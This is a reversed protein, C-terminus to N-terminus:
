KMYELLENFIDDNHDHSYPYKHAITVLAEILYDNIILLGEKKKEYTMFKNSITNQLINIWLLVTKIGNLIEEIHKNDFSEKKYILHKMNECHNKFIELFRDYKEPTIIM